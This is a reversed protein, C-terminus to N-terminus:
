DDTAESRRVRWEDMLECLREWGQIGLVMGHRSDEFDRLEHPGYPYMGGQVTVKLRTGIHVNLGFGPEFRVYLGEDTDSMSGAGLRRYEDRVPRGYEDTDVVPDPDTM